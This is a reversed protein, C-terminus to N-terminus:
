PTTCFKLEYVSFNLWVPALFIARPYSCKCIHPSSNLDVAGLHFATGPQLGLVLSTPSSLSLHTRPSWQGALMALCCFHAKPVSLSQAWLLLISSFVWCWESDKRHVCPHACCEVDNEAGGTCVPIHVASLMMRQGEQACVPIRVVSSVRFKLNEQKKRNPDCSSALM